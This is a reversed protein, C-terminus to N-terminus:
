SINVLDVTLGKVLLVDDLKPLRTCVLKGVGKIEGKAEDGFVVSSSSYSKIDVLYTIYGILSNFFIPTGVLLHPLSSKQAQVDLNIQGAGGWKQVSKFPTLRFLFAAWKAM